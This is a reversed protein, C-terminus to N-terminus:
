QEKILEKIENINLGIIENLKIGYHIISDIEPNECEIGSDLDIFSFGAMIYEKPKDIM